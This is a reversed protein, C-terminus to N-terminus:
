EFWEIERESVGVWLQQSKAKYTDRAVYTRDVEVGNKYTVKFTEVVVGDSAKRKLVPEDDIYMVHTGTTDEVYEPDVPAPLVEVTEAVLDYTVGDEHAEGYIDVRCNWRGNARVLYTMIYVNNGTTNKFTLDIKKGDYNVTADLGYETYNVKDSHPERKTIQMNARVAALYITTSAQCVGGGYGMRENGYAYEIAQHFGNKANRVGVIGNFSFSEGPKLTKGNILQFAREINATRETTSTTSIETTATGRLTRERRLDAETVSPMIMQPTLEISGSQMENVMQYLQQKVPEVNLYYGPVEPEIVFPYSHAAPDYASVYADQPRTYVVSALENLIRDIVSTDGSPLATYGHYPELLLADMAAKREGVDSSAHGQAWADELAENVNVTMGLDKAKITRILGGQYTLRVNWAQLRQQASATVANVAEQQTMGGLHIGDVYVGECFKNNYASVAEHRTNSESLTMGGYVLLVVAAVIAAAVAALKIWGNRSGGGSTTDPSGGAAPMQGLPDAQMGAPAYGNAPQWNQQQYAQSWGQQMQPPYSQSWGQQAPQPWEAPEQPPYAQSWDPAPQPQYTQSWGQQQPPQYPQSWDPRTPYGQVANTSIPEAYDQAPQVPNTAKATGAKGPMPQPASMSPESVSEVVYRESRRHRQNTQNQDYPHM